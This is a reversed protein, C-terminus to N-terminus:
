RAPDRPYNAWAAAPPRPRSGGIRFWRPCAFFPLGYKREYAQCLEPHTGLRLASKQLLERMLPDPVGHSAINQDDKIWTCVTAGLEDHIAISTLLEDPLYPVCLVSRVTHGDLARRVAQARQERTLGQQSLVASWDGFDQYGWESRARIAFVRQGGDLVRKVLPGTGHRDNIEYFTVVVDIAEGPRTEPRLLRDLRGRLESNEAILSDPM